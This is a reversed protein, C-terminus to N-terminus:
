MMDLAEGYLFLYLYAEKLVKGTGQKLAEGYIAIQVAYESKIRAIEEERAKDKRLFSSKYDVLVLEGDEEFVCDAVGQVLVDQGDKEYVLTFPKEKKLKGERCAKVARKGLDVKFFASINSLEVDKYANEDIAKRALLDEAVSKIYAEDVSGDDKIVAAFDIQEMIRHYAIGIDSSNARRKKNRTN